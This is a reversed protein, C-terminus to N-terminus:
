LNETDGKKREMHGSLYRGAKEEAKSYVKPTRKSKSPSGSDSQRKAGEICTGKKELYM